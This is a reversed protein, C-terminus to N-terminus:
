RTSSPQPLLPQLPPVTVGPMMPQAFPAGTAGPAHSLAPAKMALVVTGASKGTGVRLEVGRSIDISSVVLNAALTDGPAVDRVGASGLDLLARMRTGTGYLSVVVPMPGGAGSMSLTAARAQMLALRKQELTTQTELDAMQQLVQSASQAMAIGSSALALMALAHKFM